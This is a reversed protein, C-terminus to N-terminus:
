VVYWIKTPIAGRLKDNLKFNIKKEEKLENLYKSISNKSADQTTYGLDDSLAEAIKAQSLGKNNEKLFNFLLIKRKLHLEKRKLKTETM